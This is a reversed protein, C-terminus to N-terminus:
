GGSVPPLVAVIAGPPVTCHDDAFSDDIALRCRPLFEALAPFRRALEQRLQELTLSPASQLTISDTGALERAQAFLLVRVLM